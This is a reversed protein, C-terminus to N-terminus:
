DQHHAFRRPVFGSWALALRADGSPLESEVRVTDDPGLWPVKAVFHSCTGEAEGAPREDPPACGFTIERRTEGDRVSGRLETVGAAHPTGDRTLFIDLENGDKRSLHATLAAEIGGERVRMMVDRPQESHSHGHGHTHSHGHGHTHAHGHTHPHGHAHASSTSPAAARTPAASRACGVASFLLVFGLCATRM